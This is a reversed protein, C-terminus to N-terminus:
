VGFMILESGCISGVASPTALTIIERPILDGFDASVWVGVSYLGGIASISLILLGALVSREMTLLGLLRSTRDDALLFGRRIGYYQALLAFLVAQLGVVVFAGSARSLKALM